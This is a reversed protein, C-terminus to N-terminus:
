ASNKWGPFVSDGPPRQRPQPGARCEDGDAVEARGRQGPEARDGAARDDRADDVTEALGAVDGVVVRAPRSLSAIRSAAARAQRVANRCSAPYIRQVSRNMATPSRNAAARAHDLTQPPPAEPSHSWVSTDVFLSLALARGQLRIGSGM